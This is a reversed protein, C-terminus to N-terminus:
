AGVVKVNAFDWGSNWCYNAKVVRASYHSVLSGAKTWRGKNLRTYITYKTM